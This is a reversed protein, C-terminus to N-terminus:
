ERAPLTQNTVDRSPVPFDSVKKSLADLTGKLLLLFFKASKYYIGEIWSKAKDMLKPAAISPTAV